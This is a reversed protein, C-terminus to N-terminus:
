KHSAPPWCGYEDRHNLPASFAGQLFEVTVYDRNKDIFGESEELEKSYDELKWEGTHWKMSAYLRTFRAERDRIKFFLQVWDAELRGIDMALIEEINNIDRRLAAAAADDTRYGVRALFPPDIFVKEIDSKTSAKNELIQFIEVFRAYLAPLCTERDYGALVGTPLLALAALLATVISLSRPAKCIVHRSNNCDPM